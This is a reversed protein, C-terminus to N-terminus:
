VFPYKERYRKALRAVKSGDTSSGKAEKLFFSAAHEPSTSTGAEIYQRMKAVILADDDRYDLGSHKRTKLKTPSDVNARAAPSRRPFLHEPLPKDRRRFWEAALAEPVWCRSLYGRIREDDTLCFIETAEGLYAATLRITKSRPQLCLVKGRVKDRNHVDFEGARIAGLLEKYAENLKTQNPHAEGPKRSFWDAIEAFAVWNRRRRQSYEFRRISAARDGPTSRRQDDSM